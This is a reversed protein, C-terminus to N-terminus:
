ARTYGPKGPKGPESGAVGRTHGPKGPNARNAGQGGGPNVRQKGHLVTNGDSLIIPLFITIKREKKGAVQTVARWNTGIPTMPLGNKFM